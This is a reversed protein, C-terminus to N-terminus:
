KDCAEGGLLCNMFLTELLNKVNHAPSRGLRVLSDALCVGNINRISKSKHVTANDLRLNAANFEAVDRRCQLINLRGSGSHRSRSRYFWRWNLTHAAPSQPSCRTVTSKIPSRLGIVLSIYFVTCSRIAPASCLMCLPAMTNLSKIDMLGTPFPQGGDSLPTGHKMLTPTIASIM